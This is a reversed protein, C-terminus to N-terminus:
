TRKAHVDFTYGTQSRLVAAAWYSTHSTSVLVRDRGSIAIIVIHQRWQHSRITNAVLSSASCSLQAQSRTETNRGGKIAQLGLRPPLRVRARSKYGRGRAGDEEHLRQKESTARQHSPQAISACTGSDSIRYAPDSIGQRRAPPSSSLVLMCAGLVRM